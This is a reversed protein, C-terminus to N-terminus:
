QEIKHASQPHFLMLERFTYSRDIKQKWFIMLKEASHPLKDKKEEPLMLVIKDTEHCHHYIACLYGKLGKEDVEKGFDLIRANLGVHYPSEKEYAMFKLLEILGFSYVENIIDKAISQVEDNDEYYALRRIYECSEYLANKYVNDPFYAEIIKEETKNEYLIQKAIEAIEAGYMQELLVYTSTEKWIEEYDLLVRLFLKEGVHVSYISDNGNIHSLNFKLASIKQRMEEHKLLEGILICGLKQSYELPLCHLGYLMTCLHDANHQELHFKKDENYDVFRIEIDNYDIEKGKLFSFTINDRTPIFVFGGISAAVVIAITIIRLKLNTIFHLKKM